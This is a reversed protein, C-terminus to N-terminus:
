FLDITRGSLFHRPVLWPSSKLSQLLKRELWTDIAEATCKSPVGQHAAWTCYSTEIPLKFTLWNEMSLPIPFEIETLSEEAPTWAGHSGAPNKWWKQCIGCFMGLSSDSCCVWPYIYRKGNRKILSNLKIFNRRVQLWGLVSSRKRHSQYSM